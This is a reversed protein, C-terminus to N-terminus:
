ALEKAYYDRVVEVAKDPVERMRPYKRGSLEANKDFATRVGEVNGEYLALAGAHRYEVASEKRDRELVEAKEMAEAYTGKGSPHLYMSCSLDAYLAVDSGCLQELLNLQREVQIPVKVNRNM